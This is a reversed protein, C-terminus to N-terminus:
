QPQFASWSSILYQDITSLRPVLDGQLMGGTYSFYQEYLPKDLGLEIALEIKDQETFEDDSLMEVPDGVVYLGFFVILSMVIALIGSHWLRKLIYKIM